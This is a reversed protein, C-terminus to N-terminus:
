RAPRTDVLGPIRQNGLFTNYRYINTELTSFDFEWSDGPLLLPSEFIPNGEDDRDRAIIQYERPPDQNEWKVIWVEELAITLNSPTFKGNEIIVLTVGEPPPETTTTTSPAENRELAAESPGSGCAAVVTGLLAILAIARRL